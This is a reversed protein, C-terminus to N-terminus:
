SLSFLGNLDMPNMSATSLGSALFTTSPDPTQGAPIQGKTKHGKWEKITELKKKISNSHESQTM